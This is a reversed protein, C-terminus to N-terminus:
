FANKFTSYYNGKAKMSELRLFDENYKITPKEENEDLYLGHSKETGSAIFTNEIDEKHEENLYDSLNKSVNKRFNFDADIYFRKDDPYEEENPPRTVIIFHRYQNRFRHSIQKITSPDFLRSKGDSLVVCTWNLNNRLKIGEALTTTAIIVQVDDSFTENEIIERYNSSKKNESNITVSKIDYGKLFRKIQESRTMDNVFLLVKEQKAAGNIINHILRTILKNGSNTVGTKGIEKYTYVRFDTLTSGVNRDSLKYMKEFKDKQINEVTGSLGILSNVREDEFLKLMEKIADN